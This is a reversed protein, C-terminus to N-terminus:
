MPYALSFEDIADLVAQPDDVPARDRVYSLIDTPSRYPYRCALM